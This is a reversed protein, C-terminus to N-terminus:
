NAEHDGLVQSLYWGLIMFLIASVVLTGLIGFKTFQYIDIMFGATFVYLSISILYFLYSFKKYKVYLWIALILSVWFVVWGIPEYFVM